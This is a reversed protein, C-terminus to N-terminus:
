GGRMRRRKTRRYKQQRRTKHKRRRTSSFPNLKSFFKAFKTIGMIIYVLIKNFNQELIIVLHSPNHYIM